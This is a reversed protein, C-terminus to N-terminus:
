TSTDTGRRRLVDPDGHHGTATPPPLFPHPARVAARSAASPHLAHAHTPPTARAHARPAHFASTSRTKPAATMDELTDNLPRRSRRRRRAPTRTTCRPQLSPRICARHEHTPFTSPARCDQLACQATTQIHLRPHSRGAPTTPTHSEHRVAPLPSVDQRRHPMRAHPLHFTSPPASSFSPLSLNSPSASIDTTAAGAGLTQRHAKDPAQSPIVPLLRAQRSIHTHSAHTRAAANAAGAVPATTSIGRRESSGLHTARGKDNAHASTASKLSDLAGIRTVMGRRAKM